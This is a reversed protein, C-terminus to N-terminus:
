LIMKLELDSGFSPSSFINLFIIIKFKEIYKNRTIAQLSSNIM